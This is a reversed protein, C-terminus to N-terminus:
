VVVVTKPFHDKLKKQLTGIWKVPDKGLITALVVDPRIDKTVPDTLKNQMVYDRISQTVKTRSVLDDSGVKLFTALQKSIRVPKNFGSDPATVRKKKLKLVMQLRKGLIELQKRLSLLLKVSTGKLTKDSRITTIESTLGVLVENYEAMVSVNDPKVKKVAPKKEVKKKEVKKKESVPKKETKKETKKSKSEVAKSEVPKTEVTKTEVTKSEVTKSEVPKSEVTNKNTRPPM